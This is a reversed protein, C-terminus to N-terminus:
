RLLQDWTQPPDQKSAWALIRRKDDKDPIFIADRLAQFFDLRLGHATSIYFMNFVHFVDKLVRSRIVVTDKVIVM